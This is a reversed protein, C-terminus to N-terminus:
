SSDKGITEHSHGQRKVRRGGDTEPFHESEPFRGKCSGGPSGASASAPDQKTM